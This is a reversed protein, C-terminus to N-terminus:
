DTKGGKLENLACQIIDSTTHIGLQIGCSLCDEELNDDYDEPFQEPKEPKKKPDINEFFDIQSSM